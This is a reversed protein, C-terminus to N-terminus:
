IKADSIFAESFAPVFTDIEVPLLVAFVSVTLVSMLLVDPPSAVRENVPPVILMLATIEPDPIPLSPIVSSPIYVFKEPLVNVRFPPSRFIVFAPSLEPPVIVPVPLKM